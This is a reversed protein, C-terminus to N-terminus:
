RLDGKTKEINKLLGGVVAAVGADAISAHNRGDSGMFLKPSRNGTMAIFSGEGKGSSVTVLTDNPLLQSTPVATVQRTQTDVKVEKIRRLLQYATNVAEAAKTQGGLIEDYTRQLDVSDLRLAAFEDPDKDIRQNNNRDADGAVVNYDVTSPLLPLNSGNFGAVFGVTLNDYGPNYDVAAVVKATYDPFQNGFQLKAKAAKNKTVMIDALVSGNHPTSLSTYSLIKFDKDHSRQYTALYARADLGGKSHMVLHVSDVGYRKVVRPIAVDLARADAEITTPDGLSISTDTVFGQRILDQTFGHRTFFTGTQSNGHILIVPSLAKFSLAVWDVVTCWADQQPFNVTDIDVQFDNLAAVPAIGPEGRAAPFRVLDIPVEFSEKRWHNEQGNLFESNSSRLQQVPVGNFSLRDRQPAVPPRPSFEEWRFVITITATESLVGSAVLNKANKLTGDSNVQGLYRGVPLHYVLPSEGNTACSADMYPAHNLVFTLDDQTPPEFSSSADGAASAVAPLVTMAFMAM